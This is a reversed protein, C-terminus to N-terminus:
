SWFSKLRAALNCLFSTKGYRLVPQEFFTQPTRDLRCGLPISLFHMVAGEGDFEADISPSSSSTWYDTEWDLPTGEQCVGHMGDYGIFYRTRSGNRYTAYSYYESVSHLSAVFLEQEAFAELLRSRERNSPQVDLLGHTLDDSLILLHQNWRAIAVGPSPYLAEELILHEARELDYGEEALWDPPTMGPEESRVAILSLKWGMSSPAGERNRGDVVDRM